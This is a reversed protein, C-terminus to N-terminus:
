VELELCIPFHDSWHEKNPVIYSGIGRKDISKTLDQGGLETLISFSDVVYDDAAGPGLLIQDLHSWFDSVDNTFFYTGEPSGNWKVSPNYHLIYKHRGSTEVRRGVVRDYDGSSVLGKPETMPRSTPKTNFDGLVIHNEYKPHFSDKDAGSLWGYRIQSIMHTIDSTRSTDDQRVQDMQSPLHVGTVPFYKENIKFMASYSRPLVNDGYDRTNLRKVGDTALFVGRKTKKLMAEDDALYPWHVKLQGYQNGVNDPIECIWALFEGDLSSAHNAIMDLFKTGVCSNKGGRQLNWTFLNLKM